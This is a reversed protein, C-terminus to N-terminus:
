KWLNILPYIEQIIKVHYILKNTVCEHGKDDNLCTDLKKSKMVNGAKNILYFGTIALLQFNIM